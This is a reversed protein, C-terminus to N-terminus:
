FGSWLALLMEIDSVSVVYCLVDDSKRCDREHHFFQSSFSIIEKSEDSWSERYNSLICFFTMRFPLRYKKPRSDITDIATKFTFISGDAQVSTWLHILILWLNLLSHQKIGIKNKLDYRKRKGNLKVIFLSCLLTPKM